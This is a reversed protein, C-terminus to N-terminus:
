FFGNDNNSLIELAYETYDSLSNFKKNKSSIDDFVCLINKSLDSPLSEFENIYKKGSKKITDIYNNYEKKGTGILLNIQSGIQQKIIEDYNKRSSTHSSFAAPTADYLYSSTIIGTSMNQKIATEMLTENISSNDNQSIMENLTKKGTSMASAAAASDTTKFYKSFTTVKGQLPLLEMNLTELNSTKQQKLIIKVWEM